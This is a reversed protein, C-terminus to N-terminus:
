SKWFGRIVWRTTLGLFCVAIVPGLWVLLATLIAGLQASPLVSYLVRTYEHAVINRQESTLHGALTFTFGNPMSLFREDPGRGMFLPELGSEGKPPPPLPRAKISIIQKAQTSMMSLYEDSHPTNELNPFTNFTYVAVLCGYIVSLAIWLRWWGGLKM